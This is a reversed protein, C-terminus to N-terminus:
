GPRREGDGAVSRLPVRPEVVRDRDLVDRHVRRTALDPQVGYRDALVGRLRDYVRLAEVPRGAICLARMLLRHASERAPHRTALEVLDPLTEGHQGLGLRAQALLERASLQVEDLRAARAAIAPGRPVDAFASGRWARLAEALEVAAQEPRDSGLLRRARSVQAVAREADVEPPHVVLRYGAPETYLRDSLPGLLARLRWVYGQVTKRPTQPVEDGWLEEVLADVSVTRGADVLLAALVTRHRAAPVTVWGDTSRVVLPGLVGFAEDSGTGPLTDVM